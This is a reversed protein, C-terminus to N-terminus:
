ESEEDDDERACGIPCPGYEFTGGDCEFEMTGSNGCFRCKGNPKLADARVAANLESAADRVATEFALIAADM